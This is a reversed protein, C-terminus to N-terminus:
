PRFGDVAALGIVGTDKLRAATRANVGGLAYVPVGAARVLQALRIPGMPAGASVSRSAFVTSVVAADAGARGARRAARLSHAAATVIWGPRRRKLVGATHALREPLHVGDAGAAAALAADAGVILKAARGHAIARLRRATGLADAAGFSRYVLAAGPPLSRALVELDLTRAPDTFVLLSPLGNGAAGKWV